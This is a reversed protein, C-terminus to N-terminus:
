SKVVRMMIKCFVIGVITNILTAFLSPGIIEAPNISGYQARYALINMSVLQISSINIILFTCMEVSAIEQDHNLKKLEKMALLGPPTAAWGLGVLNAIMNTAIYKRAIHDKPIDPFLFSLFPSLKKTIYALIGAREAIKMLGTWMAIIGTLTICLSVAARAEELIGQTVAAMNGSICAYIIGILIMFAWLYNMLVISEVKRNNYPSEIYKSRYIKNVCVM